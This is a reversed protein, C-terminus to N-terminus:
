GGYETSKRKLIGGTKNLGLQLVSCTGSEDYKGLRDATKVSSGAIIWGSGDIRKNMNGIQTYQTILLLEHKCGPLLIYTKYWDWDWDIEWFGDKMTEIGAWM